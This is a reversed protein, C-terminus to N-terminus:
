VVNDKDGNQTRVEVRHARDPLSRTIDGDFVAWTEVEKGSADLIRYELKATAISSTARIQLVSGNKTVAFGSIAAVKYDVSKLVSDRTM